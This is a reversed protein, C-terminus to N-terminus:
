KHYPHNKAIMFSRYIQECLMVRMLQHPFTLHSFSWKLNAREKIYYNVGHSGGIIFTLKKGIDLPHIISESLKESSLNKGKIDLLIVYDETKIKSLIRISEDEIIDKTNNKISNPLETIVFNHESKMRKSYEDILQQMPKEKIKGIALIEIM